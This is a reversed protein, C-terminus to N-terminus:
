MVRTKKVLEGIYDRNLNYSDSYRVGFSGGLVLVERQRQREQRWSRARDAM